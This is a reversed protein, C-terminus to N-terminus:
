ASAAPCSSLAFTVATIIENVTIDGSGDADGIPCATLPTLGLAINVMTILENVTVAGSADCDGTCPPPPTPSPTPSVAADCSGGPTGDQNLCDGDDVCSYGSFDGGNCFKGTSQCRAGSCQSDRLCSVGKFDGSLCVKQAGVCAVGPACNTSVDCCDDANPGGVCVGTFTTNCAPESPSCTGAACVCYALGSTLSDCVGQAIVCVGTPACDDDNDCAQGDRPGASCLLESAATPTPTQAWVSGGMATGLLICLMVSPRNVSTRMM